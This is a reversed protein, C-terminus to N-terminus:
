LHYVKNNKKVFIYILITIIGAIFILVFSIGKAGTQPNEIGSGCSAEYEEYSVVNGNADLYTGDNLISCVPKECEKQYELYSIPKGSLGYYIGDVIECSYSTPQECDKKYEEETVVNGNKGYYTGDIIECVHPLCEKEFEEKSTINGEKDYYNGDKFECVPKETEECEKKYEDESVVEGDKGYYIGDVIKCIHKEEEPECEKKYEEKTVVTGNKGYYTGDSLIECYHPLCQKEYELKSVLNGLKDSYTGDGYDKCVPKECLKEYELETIINGNPGYYNGEFITCSRNVKKWDCSYHISCEEATNIKKFTITAMEVRGTLTPNSTEFTYLNENEKKMYWGKKIEIDKIEVNTLTLTLSNQNYTVEGDVDFIFHCVQVADLDADLTLEECYSADKLSAANVPLFGLFGIFIFLCSLIIKKM